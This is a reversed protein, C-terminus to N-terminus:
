RIDFELTNTPTQPRPGDLLVILGASLVANTGDAVRVLRLWEKRQTLDLSGVFLKGADAAVIAFAAGDVDAWSGSVPAGAGDDPTEQVKMALTGTSAVTGIDALIAAERQDGKRVADGNEPTASSMSIPKLSHRAGLFEHATFKM